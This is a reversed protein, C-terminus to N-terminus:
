ADSSWRVLVQALVQKPTGVGPTGVGTEPTGVGGALRSFHVLMPGCGRAEDSSPPSPYPRRALSGRRGTNQGVVIKKMTPLIEEMTELYIRKRTIDPAKRYENFLALFGQTDGKARLIKEERYGEAQRVIQASKGRTEPIVAKRYGQAQNIMREKDERASVVDKFSAAVQTPPHM